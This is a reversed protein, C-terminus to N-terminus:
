EDKQLSFMRNFFIVFRIYIAYVLRDIHRIVWRVRKSLCSCSSYSYDISKGTWEEFGIVARDIVETDMYRSKMYEVDMVVGHRQLRVIPIDYNFYIATAVRHSGDCLVDDYGVPVWNLEPETFGNVEMNEILRHFASIFDRMSKKIDSGSEEWYTGRTFADVRAKYDKYETTTMMAETLRECDTQNLMMDNRISMYKSIYNLEIILDLRKENLFNRANVWIIENEM